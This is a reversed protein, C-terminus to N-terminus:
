SVNKINSNKIKIYEFYEEITILHQESIGHEKKHNWNSSKLTTMYDKGYNISLFYDPNRPISVNIGNFDTRQRPFFEEIDWDKAFFHIFKGDTSYEFIFLDIFPWFYSDKKNVLYNSWIKFNNLNIVKDKFCTKMINDRVIFSIESNYKKMIDPVKNKIDKNVILDIDDDFPIFDNHRKLGLLTGSILFYDINFEDLIDTTLKLLDIAIHKHEAFGLSSNFFTDILNHKM